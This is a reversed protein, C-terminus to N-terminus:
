AASAAIGNADSNFTSGILINNVEDNLSLGKGSLFLKPKRLIELCPEYTVAAWVNNEPLWVIPGRSRMEAYTSLPDAIVSDDFFDGEFVPVGAMVM